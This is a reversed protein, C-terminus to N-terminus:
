LFWIYIQSECKELVFLWSCFRRDYSAIFWSDLLTELLLPPIESALASGGFGILLVGLGISGFGPSAEEVVTDELLGLTTNRFTVSFLRIYYLLCFWVVLILLFGGLVCNIYFCLKM